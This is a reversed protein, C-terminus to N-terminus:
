PLLNPTPPDSCSSIVLRERAAGAYNRARQNQSYGFAHIARDSHKNTTSVFKLHPKLFGSRLELLHGQGSWGFENEFARDLHLLAGGKSKTVRTVNTV